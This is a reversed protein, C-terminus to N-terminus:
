LLLDQGKKAMMMIRGDGHQPDEAFYMYGAKEFMTKAYSTYHTRLFSPINPHASGMWETLMNCLTKGIRKERYTKSPDVAVESYYTSNTNGLKDAIADGWKEKIAEITEVWGWTFGVIQGTDKDLAYLGHFNDGYKSTNGLLEENAVNESEWAPILNVTPHPHDKGSCTTIGDVEVNEQSYYKDCTPCKKFEGFNPDYMWISCYFKALNLLFNPDNTLTAHDFPLYVIHLDDDKKM